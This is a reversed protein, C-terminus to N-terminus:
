WVKAPRVSPGAVSLKLAAQLENADQGAPLYYFCQWYWETGKKRRDREEM